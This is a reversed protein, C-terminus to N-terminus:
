FLYNISLSYLGPSLELNFTFNSSLSPLYFLGGVINEYHSKLGVFKGKFEEMNSLNVNLAPSVWGGYFSAFDGDRFMRIRDFHYYAAVRGTTSKLLEEYSNTFLLAKFKLGKVPGKKFGMVVGAHFWATESSFKYTVGAEFKPDMVSLGELYSKVAPLKEFERQTLQMNFSLWIDKGDTTIWARQYSSPNHGLHFPIKLIVQNELPVPPEMKNEDEVIPKEPVIVAKEVPKQKKKKENHFDELIDIVPSEPVEDSEATLIPPPSSPKKHFDEIKKDVESGHFDELVKIPDAYANICFLSLICILFTKM